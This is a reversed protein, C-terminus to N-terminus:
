AWETFRVSYKYSAKEEATYTYDAVARDLYMGYFYEWKRSVESALMMAGTRGHTTLAYSNIFGAKYKAAWARPAGPKPETTVVVAVNGKKKM